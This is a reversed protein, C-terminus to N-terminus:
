DLQSVFQNIITGLVQPQDFLVRHGSQAVSFTQIQSNAKKINQGIATYKLDKEGSLYLVPVRTTQLFPHFDEQIGISWQTLCKALLHRNYDSEKRIPENQSGQFVPQANWQALVKEFIMTEFKEAWVQDSALRSVREWPPIGPNTSILVLGSWLQPNQQIAHLALRGGLSYGILVHKAETRNQAQIFKNFNEAWSKFDHGSSLERTKLYDIANLTVGLGDFDEPRGLFGHLASLMM